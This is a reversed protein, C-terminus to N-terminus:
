CEDVGAVSPVRVNCVMFDRKYREVRRRDPDVDARRDIISPPFDM